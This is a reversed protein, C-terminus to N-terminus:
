FPFEDTLFDPIAISGDSQQNLEMLAAMLRPLALSSGNLTHVLTTKKESGKKYRIAGRRAQFDTCNSISSIEYYDNQGPLWIEIDYTKASPFSCEQAALLVIRYPIKLKKLLGQACELMREQEQESKDPECITYLEVKEFQHMRVLGRETAGYGGAERRFCSTWSTMRRPLEDQEFIHDRYINTLEVEATPTLYLDEDEIKYVQDKFKPLNSSVILSEENVLYPPLIPEYGHEKNHKLMLLALAYLLKVAEERYFVFQSGTIKVATEFSFWGLSEGLELHNKIPFSFSPQKDVSKIVSNQERGGAPVSVAPINPCLLYLNKFKEKSENLVVEKEHLLKSLAISRDRIEKTVGKKAQQALENKEKRIVEVELLITRVRKDLEILKDIPFSPDKKLLLAKVREPDDRLLYLDIM